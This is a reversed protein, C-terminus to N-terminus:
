RNLVPFRRRLEEKRANGDQKSNDSRSSASEGSSSQQDGDTKDKSPMVLYPHEKALRELAKKLGKKDVKGDGDTVDELYGEAEALKLAVDADHWNQKNATLFAVRMRLGSIEKAQSEVTQELEQATEQAKTLDDKKADEQEKLKKEAESARRDAAEMRRRLRDREERDDDSGSDADDDKKRKGSEDDDGSTDDDKDKDDDDDDAMWSWGAFRSNAPRLGALFEQDKTSLVTNLAIPGRHRM